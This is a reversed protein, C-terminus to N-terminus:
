GESWCWSSVSSTRWLKKDTDRHKLKCNEERRRGTAFVDLHLAPKCRRWLGSGGRRQVLTLKIFCYLEPEEAGRARSSAAGREERCVCLCCVYKELWETNLM